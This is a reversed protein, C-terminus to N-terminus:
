QQRSIEGRLYKYYSSPVMGLPFSRFLARLSLTKHAVSDKEISLRVDFQRVGERSLSSFGESLGGTGAFLDIVPISRLTNIQM